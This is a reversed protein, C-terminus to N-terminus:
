YGAECLENWKTALENLVEEITRLSGDPNALAIDLNAFVETIYDM